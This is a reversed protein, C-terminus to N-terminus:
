DLRIMLLRRCDSAACGPPNSLTSSEYNVTLNRSSTLAAIGLQRVDDALQSTLEVAFYSISPVTTTCRVAVTNTDSQVGIPTCIARTPAATVDGAFVTLGLFLTGAVYKM